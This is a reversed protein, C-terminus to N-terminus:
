CKKCLDELTLSFRCEVGSLNEDFLRETMGNTSQTGMNSLERISCRDVSQVKDRRVDRLYKFFNNAINHMPYIVEKRHNEALMNDPDCAGMFYLEADFSGFYPLQRSYNRNITFPERLWVFPTKQVNMRKAVGREGDIDKLTGSYFGIPELIIQKITLDIVGSNTPTLKFSENVIVDSVEYTEGAITIIQRESIYSTNCSTVSYVGDTLTISLVKITYPMKNVFDAMINVIEIM